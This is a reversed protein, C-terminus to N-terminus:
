VERFRKYENIRCNLAISTHATQELLAYAPHAQDTHKQITQLLLPYRAIRQVPMVLFFSLSTANVDPASAKIVKVIENWLGEKQKYSNEVVTIHNYNALYENYAAEIDSSLSLFSDCLTELFQPDGPRVQKQDLMSLLRSSVEIVEDIYLFMSDLNAPPPQLKQLNSRITVTSLQLLRLYNRESHVLEEIALLQRQAAREKAAAEEEESKKKAEEAEQALREESISSDESFSDQSSLKSDTVSSTNLDEIESTEASAEVLVSVGSKEETSFTEEGFQNKETTGDKEQLKEEVPDKKTVKQIAGLPKPLALTFSSPQPRRPVEM